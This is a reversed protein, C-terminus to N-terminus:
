TKRNRIPFAAVRGVDAVFVRVQFPEADAFHAQQSVDYIGVIGYKGLDSNRVLFDLSVYILSRHRSVYYKHPWLSWRYGVVLSSLRRQRLLPSEM